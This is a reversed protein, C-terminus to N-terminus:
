AGCGAGPLNQLNQVPLQSFIMTEVNKVSVANLETTIAQDAYLYMYPTFTSSVARYPADARRQRAELPQLFSAAQIQKLLLLHQAM